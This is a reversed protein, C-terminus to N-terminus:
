RPYTVAVALNSTHESLAIRLRDDAGHVTAVRQLPLLTYLVAQAGPPSHLVLSPMTGTRAVHIFVRGPRQLVARVEVSRNERVWRRADDSEWRRTGAELSLLVARVSAALPGDAPWSRPDPTFFFGNYYARTVRAGDDRAVAVCFADVGECAAPFPAAPPVCTIPIQMDWVLAVRCDEDAIPLAPPEAHATREAFVEAPTVHLWGRSWLARAMATPTLYNEPRSPLHWGSSYVALVVTMAMLARRFRATSSDWAGAIWPMSLPLLLLAWRNVNPTGGHNANPNQSWLLLLLIQLLAPWQWRWTWWAPTRLALVFGLLAVLYAPANVAIGINPEVIFALLGAPSPLTLYAHEAMPSPRGVRMWNDILPLAVIVAGLSVAVHERATWRRRQRSVVFTVGAFVPFLAGISANQAGALAFCVMATAPSTELAVVAIAVAALLFAETHAKDVWWIIPGLFMYLVGVLPAIRAVAYVAGALMAVNTLTFAWNPHLHLLQACWVGPVVLLPYLWFHLFGQRGDTGVMAPYDILSSEFGRGLSRLSTRYEDLETPTVVPPRLAALQHAMVLYEGGDGVRRPSSWAIAAALLLAYAAAIVAARQNRTPGVIVDTRIM